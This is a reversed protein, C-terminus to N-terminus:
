GTSSAAGPSNEQTSLGGPILGFANSTPTSPEGINSSTMSPSGETEEHVKGEDAENEGFGYAAMIDTILDGLTDVGVHEVIREWRETGILREVIQFGFDELEDDSVGTKAQRRVDLIIKAPVEAPLEHDEGGIRFRIPEKQSALADYDKFKM